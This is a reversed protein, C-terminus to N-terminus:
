SRLTTKLGVPPGADAQGRDLPDAPVKVNPLPVHITVRDFSVSTPPTGGLPKTVVSFGFTTLGFTPIGDVTDIRVVPKVDLTGDLAVEGTIYAPLDLADEDVVSIKAMGDATTVSGSDLRVEKTTYKFTPKASAQIALAGEVISPDVGLADFGLSFLTSQDLAPAPMVLSAGAFGWPLLPTSAKSDYNFSAGPIKNLLSNADYDISIGYISAELHPTLTYHASLTGQAGDDTLARLNIFGKEPWSAEVLAGKPMDVTVLPDGGAPDITFRTRIKILGKDMWGSDIETALKNKIQGKLASTGVSCTLTSPDCTTGAQAPSAALAALAGLLSAIGVRAISRRTTSM